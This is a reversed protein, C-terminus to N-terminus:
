IKLKSQRYTMAIQLTHRMADYLGKIKDEKKPINPLFHVAKEYAILEGGYFKGLTSDDYDEILLIFKRGFIKPVDESNYRVVEELECYGFKIDNMSLTWYNLRDHGFDIGMFLPQLLLKCAQQIESARSILQEEVKRLDEFNPVTLGLGRIM